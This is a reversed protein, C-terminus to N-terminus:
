FMYGCKASVLINVITLIITNTIPTSPYLLIKGSNFDVKLQTLVRVVTCGGSVNWPLPASSACMTACQVSSGRASAGVSPVVGRSAERM